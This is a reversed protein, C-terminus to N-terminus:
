RRQLAEIADLASRMAPILGQTVELVITRGAQGILALGVRGGPLVIPQVAEVLAVPDAVGPLGISHAVIATLGLEDATSKLVACLPKINVTKPLTQDAEWQTVSSATLGCAKAVKAQTLGLAERRARILQGITPAKAM